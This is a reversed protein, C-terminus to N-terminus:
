CSKLLLSYINRFLFIYLATCIKWTLTSVSHRPFGCHGEEAGPIHGSKIQECINWGVVATSPCISPPLQLDEYDRGEVSFMHFCSSHGGAWVRQTCVCKTHTMFHPIINKGKGKHCMCEVKRPLVTVCGSLLRLNKM